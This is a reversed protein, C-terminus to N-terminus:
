FTSLESAIHNQKFIFLYILVVSFLINPIVFFLLDVFMCCTVSIYLFTVTLFEFIGYM